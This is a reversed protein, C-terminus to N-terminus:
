KSYRTPEKLYIYPIRRMDQARDSTMFKFLEPCLCAIASMVAVVPGCVFSCTQLPYAMFCRQSCTHLGDVTTIPSHCARNTTFGLPKKYLVEYVLRVRQVINRPLNKGLSDGYIMFKKETDFHLLTWHSGPQKNSAIYVDRNPLTGVNVIFLLNKPKPTEEPFHCRVYRGVACLFNLHFVHTNQQMSNLQEAIWMTHDSSLLSNCCLKALYDPTLGYDNIIASTESSFILSKYNNLATTSPYKVVSHPKAYSDGFFDLKKEVNAKIDNAKHLTIAQDIGKLNYRGLDTEACIFDDTMEDYKTLKVKWSVLMEYPPIFRHVASKCTDAEEKYFFM